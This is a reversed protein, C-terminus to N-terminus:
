TFCVQCLCVSCVSLRLLYPGLHSWQPTAQSNIQLLLNTKHGAPCLPPTLIDIEMSPQPPPPLAPSVGRLLAELDAGSSVKVAAPANRPSHARDCSSAGVNESEDSTSKSGSSGHVQQLMARKRPRPNSRATLTALGPVEGTIGSEHAEIPANAESGSVAIDSPGGTSGGGRKDVMKGQLLPAHPPTAVLEVDSACLDFPQGLGTHCLPALGATSSSLSMQIGSEAATTATAPTITLPERSSTANTSTTTTRGAITQSNHPTPLAAITPEHTTPTDSAINAPTKSIGGSTRSVVPLQGRSILARTLDNAMAENLSGELAFRMLSRSALAGRLPIHEQPNSLLRLAAAQMRRNGRDAPHRDAELPDQTLDLGMETELDHVSAWAAEPGNNLLLQGLFDQSSPPFQHDSTRRGLLAREARGHLDDDLTSHPHRPQEAAAAPAAGHNREPPPPRTFRGPRLLLTGGVGDNHMSPRFCNLRDVRELRRALARGAIDRTRLTDVNTHARGGEPAPSSRTRQNMWPLMDPQGLEWESPNTLSFLEELPQDASAAAVPELTQEAADLPNAANHLENLSSSRPGAREPNTTHHLSEYNIRAREDGLLSFLSRTGSFTECNPPQLPQPFHTRSPVPSAVLATSAPPTDLSNDGTNNANSLALSHLAVLASPIVGSATQISGGVQANDAPFTVVNFPNLQPLPPPSPPRYSRAQHLLPYGRSPADEKPSIAELAATASTAPDVVLPQMLGLMPSVPLQQGPMGPISIHLKSLSSTARIASCGAAAPTLHARPPCATASSTVPVDVVAVPASSSPTVERPLPGSNELGGDRACGSEGNASHVGRKGLIGGGTGADRAIRQLHMRRITRRWVADDSFSGSSDSDMWADELPDQDGLLEDRLNTSANLGPIRQPLHADGWGAIEAELQRRASASLVLDSVVPDPVVPEPAVPNPVVPEPAVPDPAVPDPAVPDPAVVAAYVAPPRARRVFPLRRGLVAPANDNGNGNGQSGAQNVGLQYGLGGAGHHFLDNDGESWANISGGAAAVEAPTFPSLIPRHAALLAGSIITVFEPQSIQDHEVTISAPLEKRLDLNFYPPGVVCLKTLQTFMSLARFSAANCGACKHLELHQLLPLFPHIDLLIAPNINIDVLELRTLSPVGPIM